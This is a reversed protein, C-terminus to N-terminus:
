VYTFSLKGGSLSYAYTEAQPAVPQPTANTVPQGNLRQYAHTVTVHVRGGSTTFTGESIADPFVIGRVPDAYQVERRFEGNAGLSLDVRGVVPRTGDPFTAVLSAPNSEWRGVLQAAPLTTDGECAALAACLLLTAFSRLRM